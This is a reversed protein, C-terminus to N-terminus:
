CQDTGIPFQPHFETQFAEEVDKEETGGNGQQEKHALRKQTQNNAGSPEEAIYLASYM